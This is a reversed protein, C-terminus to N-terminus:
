IIVIYSLRVIMRPRIQQARRRGARGPQNAIMGASHLVLLRIVQTSGWSTLTRLNCLCSHGGIVASTTHSLMQVSCPCPHQARLMRLRHCTLHIDCHDQKCSCHIPQSMHQPSCQCHVRMASTSAMPLRPGSRM